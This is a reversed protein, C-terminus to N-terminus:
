DDLLDTMDLRKTPKTIRKKTLERALSDSITINKQQEEKEQMDKYVKSLNNKIIAIM